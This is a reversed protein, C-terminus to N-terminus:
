YFFSGLKWLWMLNIKENRIGYNIQELCKNVLNFKIRSAYILRLLMEEIIKEFLIFKLAIAGIIIIALIQSMLYQGIGFRTREVNVYINASLANLNKNSYLACMCWMCDIQLFYIRLVIFDM